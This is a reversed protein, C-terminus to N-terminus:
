APLHDLGLAKPASLEGSIPHYAASILGWAKEAMQHADLHEQVGGLPALVGVELVLERHKFLNWLHGGFDMDGYWCVEDRNTASLDHGSLSSYNLVLPLVRVGSDAAAQFLPRRFRLVSSGDTSTAEPFITVREGNGLAESLSLVEKSLNERSRREVFLCGALRAIHGLFPTERVEVSTVFRGPLHAGLALVDVYSLHNSVVLFNEDRPIEGHFHVKIGMFFCCFRAHWGVLRPLARHLRLAHLIAASSFYSVATLGFLVAKVPAPLM